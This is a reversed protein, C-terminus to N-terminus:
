PRGGLHLSDAAGEPGFQGSPNATVRERNWGLDFDGPYAESKPARAPRKTNGPAAIRHSVRKREFPIQVRTVSSTSWGVHDITEFHAPKVSWFSPTRGRGALCPGGPREEPARHKTDIRICLQIFRGGPAVKRGAARPRGPLNHTLLSISFRSNGGPPKAPPRGLPWHNWPPPRLPLWPAERGCRM